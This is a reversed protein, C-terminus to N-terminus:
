VSKIKLILVETMMVLLFVNFQMELVLQILIRMLVARKLVFTLLTLVDKLSILLTMAARLRKMLILYDRMLYEEAELLLLFKLIGYGTNTM